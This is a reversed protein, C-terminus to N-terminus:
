SADISMVVLAVLLLAPLLTWVVEAPRGGVVSRAALPQVRMRLATIIIAAEVLILSGVVLWLGPTTVSELNAIQWRGHPSNGVIAPGKLPRGANAARAFSEPRAPQITRLQLDRSHVTAAGRGLTRITSM